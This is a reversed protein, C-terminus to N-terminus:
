MGDTDVGAGAHQRGERELAEPDFDDAGEERDVAITKHEIQDHFEKLFALLAAGAKVTRTQFVLDKRRTREVFRDVFETGDRLQVYVRKGRATMTHPQRGVRPSPSQM